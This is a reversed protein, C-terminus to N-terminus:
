NGTFGIRETAMELVRGRVAYWGRRRAGPHDGGAGGSELLDRLVDARYRRGPVGIHRPTRPASCCFSPRQLIGGNDAIVVHWHERRRDHFPRRPIRDRRGPVDGIRVVKIRVAWFEMEGLLKVSIMNVTLVIVLAICCLSAWRAARHLFHVFRVRRLRHLLRSGRYAAAPGMFLGTGIAGGIAIMQLQRPKLGKHYGEDKYALASTDYEIASGMPTVNLAPAPLRFESATFTSNSSSKAPTVAIGPHDALHVGLM